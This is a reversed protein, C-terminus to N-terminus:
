YAFRVFDPENRTGDNFDKTKEIFTAACVSVHLLLLVRLSTWFKGLISLFFFLDRFWHKPLKTMMMMM